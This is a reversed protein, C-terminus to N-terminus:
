LSLKAGLFQYNQVATNFVRSLGKSLLSIWGTWGLPFWDQINMPLVSASASVGISQGGSIFFQRMHFSGLAPFSQLNSSFPVVSSSITPHCWQNLPRSNSYVRPTPLPCPPRTHQLGHPRLSDSVGSHNFQVSAGSTPKGECPQLSSDLCARLLQHREPDEWPIRVDCGSTPSSCNKWRSKLNINRHSSHIWLGRWTLSVRIGLSCLGLLLYDEEWWRPSNPPCSSLRWPWSAPDSKALPSLNSPVQTPHFTQVLRQPLVKRLQFIRSVSSYCAGPRDASTYLPSHSTPTPSSGVKPQLFPCPTLAWLCSLSLTLVLMHTHRHAWVHGSRQSGMSQLGGPEGTWPIEWALISSNTAMEKELPDEWPNFRCRMDGANAPLDKVVWIMLKREVERNAVDEEKGSVSTLAWGSCWCDTWVLWSDAEELSFRSGM